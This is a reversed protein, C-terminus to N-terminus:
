NGGQKRFLLRQILERASINCLELVFARVNWLVCGSEWKEEPRISIEVFNREDNSGDAVFFNVIARYNPLFYFLKRELFVM